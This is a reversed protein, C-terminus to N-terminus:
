AYQGEKYWFKRRQPAEVNSCSWANPEVIRLVGYNKKALKRKQVHRVAGRASAVARRIKACLKPCGALKAVTLADRLMAEATEAARVQYSNAPTLTKM